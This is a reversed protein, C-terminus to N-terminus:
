GCFGEGITATILLSNAAVTGVALYKSSGLVAYVLPPVFCSDAVINMGAFILELM